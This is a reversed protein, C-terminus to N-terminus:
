LADQKKISPVRVGKVASGQLNAGAKDDVSRLHLDRQPFPIEIGANRFEQDIEQLLESQLILRYDIDPTFVRIEFDLSSDGFGRFLVQPKPSSLVAPNDQSCDLAIKMVLPVDSGYAVGVPFRLRVIRNTRTWNTVQNTVLNSNPIVIDAGDFSQVTTARLGIKKVEAFLEDVEICDGVRVPREFLLILGSVFNNVIAQLGFGIGVGLAGGIITINTFNFGLTGLMLLFGLSTIAYHVLHRISVQVGREVRRRPFVEESLINQLTWSLLFAGYLCLVAMLIRSVSIHWSGMTFGASMLSQFAKFHDGYFRWVVLICITIIAGVFINFLRALIQIIVAVNKQLLSVRTLAASSFILELGGRGFITLIWGMILILITKLSAEMLHSAFASYGGLNAIVIIGSLTVGFWLVWRDIRTYELRAGEILRWGCLLMAMLSVCFVYLRFLPRPLDSTQLFRNIMIVVAFAYVVRRKWVDAICCSSLRALALTAAALIIVWWLGLSQGRFSMFAFAVFGIFVGAALPREAAFGLRPTAALSARSRIMIMAFVLWLFVQLLIAPANSQLTAWGSAFVFEFSKRLDDGLLRNFQSYYESSFMTPASKQFLDLLLAQHLHNIEAALSEEVAEIGAAKNETALLLEIHSSILKGAKDITEKANAIMPKVKSFSKDEALSSELTTWRKREELWEKNWRELQKIRGMLPMWTKELARGSAVVEMNLGSLRYHSYRGEAKLRELRDSFLKLRQDIKALDEELSAQDFGLELELRRELAPLRASLEASAFVLNALTLASSSTEQRATPSEPAKAEQEAMAMPSTSFTVLLILVLCLFKIRQIGM